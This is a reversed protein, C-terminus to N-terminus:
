LTSSDSEIQQSQYLLPALDSYISISNLLNNIDINISAGLGFGNKTISDTRLRSLFMPLESYKDGYSIDIINPDIAGLKKESSSILRYHNHEANRLVDKMWSWMYEFHPDKLGAGCGIFIMTKGLPLFEMSARAFGSASIEHYSKSGFIVSDPVDWIGHLHAVSREQNRLFRLVKADDKWTISPLGTVNEILTDYNTTAIPINFESIEKILATEKATLGEFTKRLWM